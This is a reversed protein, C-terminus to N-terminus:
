ACFHKQFDLLTMFKAIKSVNCIGFIYQAAIPLPVDEQVMNSLNESFKRLPPSPDNGIWFIENRKKRFNQPPLFSSNESFPPLDRWDLHIENCIKPGGLFLAVYIYISHPTLPRKSTKRFNMLDTAPLQGKDDM